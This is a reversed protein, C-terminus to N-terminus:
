IISELEGHTYQQLTDYTLGMAPPAEASLLRLQIGTIQALWEHDRRKTWNAASERYDILTMNEVEGTPLVIETNGFQACAEQVRARLESGRRRDVTGNHKALHSALKVSFVWELALSPRLAEHVAIGDIVPTQNTATHALKARIQIHKAYTNNPFDKRDNPLTYKPEDPDLLTWDATADVTDFRYQIEVWSSNTLYPGVVSIARYLKNDAQYGLHHTPFYVYSDNSTYECAADLTPNPSSTPLVCYEVTGNAFGVFLRDRGSAFGSAFLTEPMINAATAEKNNWIYLAGHHADAFQALGPVTQGGATAEIWTGHKILYSDATLPNYYIEYMFWTHHSAGAAWRGRVDSQNELVQEVGDPKLTGQADLTFTQDGFPIWIKDLWVTANKGNRPSNAGRLTPLIEQDVGTDSITYIGDEKFIYLTNDIQRLFTIKATLDGIWIVAAYRGRVFPDDETKVIWYDGAVWFENGVQELFRAEGTQTGIGPGSTPPAEQWTTGTYRWLNGGACALYLYDVGYIPVLPTTTIDNSRFRLASQPLHGSPLATSGGIGGITLSPTWTGAGGAAESTRIWVGNDCVVFMREAGGDQAQIFQRVAGAGVITEIHSEFRPGILMMGNISTDVYEGHEIRHPPGDGEITQGYGGYLKRFEFTREKFPNASSYTYDVPATADLTKTKQAVLNGDAGPELMVRTQGIYLDYPYPRRKSTSRQIVM